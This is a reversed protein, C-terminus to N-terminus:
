ADLWEVCGRDQELLSTTEGAGDGAALKHLPGVAFPPIGKPALEHPELAESTNLIAGSSSTTTETALDLIKQGIEKSPLKSPDFLDSVKLPPLEEIPM